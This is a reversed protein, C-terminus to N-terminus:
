AGDTTEEMLEEPTCIIPPVYGAARCVAEIQSRLAANAIHTRNWTLLYDMGNVAAIAIHLADIVATAPLPVDAVLKQALLAVDPCQALLPIGQLWGHRRTAADPDGASAEQVVIESIFVDFEDRRTRWWDHTIQQHAATVLDRSPWAALYSVITTELYARPKM